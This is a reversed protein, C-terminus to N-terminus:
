SRLLRGIVRLARRVLGPPETRYVGNRAPRRAVIHWVPVAYDRTMLAAETEVAEQQGWEELARLRKLRTQFEQVAAAVAGRVEANLEGPLRPDQFAAGAQEIERFQAELEAVRERHGGPVNIVQFELGHGEILSRHFDLGFYEGVDYYTIGSKAAYYRRALERPLLVIGFLQFHPDARIFEPCMRNPAAVYLCGGENTARALCRILQPVSDVHEIVDNCTILDFGGLGEMFAPDSADGKEVRHPLGSAALFPRAIALLRDDVDIGVVEHAGAEAAAMLFGGYACGADLFRIGQLARFSRIEDMALRGRLVTGLSYNVYTRLPETLEEVPAGEPVNYLRRVGQELAAEAAQRTM